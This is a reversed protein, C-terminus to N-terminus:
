NESLFLRLSPNDPHLQGIKGLSRHHHENLPLVRSVLPAGNGSKTYSNLFSLMPVGANIERQKVTSTFHCSSYTGAAKIEMMADDCFTILLFGGLVM